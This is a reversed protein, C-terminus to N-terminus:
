DLSKNIKNLTFVWIEFKLNWAITYIKKIFYFNAFTFNFIWIGFNTSHSLKKKTFYFNMFTFYFIWFGSGVDLSGSLSWNNEAECSLSPSSCFLVLSFKSCFFLLSNLKFRSLSLSLSSIPPSPCPMVYLPTVMWWGLRQCVSVPFPMHAM